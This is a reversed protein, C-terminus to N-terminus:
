RKKLGENFKTMLSYIDILDSEFSDDKAELLDFVESFLHDYMYTQYAGYVEKGLCTIRMKIDKNNDVEKYKEVLGREVLKKISKSIAPSSIGLEQALQSMKIDKNDFIGEIVQAEAFSMSQGNGYALAKSYLSAYQNMLKIHLKILDEHAELWKM